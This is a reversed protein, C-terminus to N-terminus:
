HLPVVAINVPELKREDVIKDDELNDIGTNTMFYFNGEFIAGTTPDKVLDTGREIIENGTVTHGDKALHWRMVRYAATGYQV